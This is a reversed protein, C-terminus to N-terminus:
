GRMLKQEEANRKKKSVGYATQEKKRFDAM